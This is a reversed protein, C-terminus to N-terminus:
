YTTLHRGLVEKPLLYSDFLNYRELEFKIIDVVEEPFEKQINKHSLDLTVGPTLDTSVGSAEAAKTKNEKIAIEMAERAADVIQGATAPTQSSMSSSSHEHRLSSPIKRITNPTASRASTGMESTSGNSQSIISEGSPQSSSEM